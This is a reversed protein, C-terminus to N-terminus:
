SLALNKRETCRVTYDVTVVIPVQIPTDGTVANWCSLQWFLEETPNAGFLATLAGPKSGRWYKKMSYTSTITSCKGDTPLCKLRSTPAELLEDPSAINSPSQSDVLNIAFYMPTTSTNPATRITIKAGLVTYHQYFLAATDHGHPQHGGGTADPDFISCARWFSHYPVNTITPIMTWQTSYKMRVVAPGLPMITKPIGTYRRKKSSRRKARFMSRKTRKRARYGASSRRRKAM